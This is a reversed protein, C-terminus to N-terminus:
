VRVDIKEQKREVTNAINVSLFDKPDRATLARKTNLLGNEV